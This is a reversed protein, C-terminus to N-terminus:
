SHRTKGNHYLECFAAKKAVYQQPSSPHMCDGIAPPQSAAEESMQELRGRLLVM